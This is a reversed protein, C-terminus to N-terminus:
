LAPSPSLIRLSEKTVIKSGWLAPLSMELRRERNYRIGSFIVHLPPKLHLTGLRGRCGGKRGGLERQSTQGKEFGGYGERM